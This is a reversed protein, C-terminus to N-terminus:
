LWAGARLKVDFARLTKYLKGINKKALEFDGREASLAIKLAYYKASVFSISSAKEHMTEAHLRLSFADKMAAARELKALINKAEASFSEMELKAERVNGGNRWLLTERDLSASSTEETLAGM